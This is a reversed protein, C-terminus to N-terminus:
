NAVGPHGIRQALEPTIRLDMTCVALRQRNGIREYMLRDIYCWAKGDASVLDLIEHEFFSLESHRGVAPAFRMGIDGALDRNWRAVVTGGRATWHQVKPAATARALALATLVRKRVVHM